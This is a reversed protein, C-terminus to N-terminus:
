HYYKVRGELNKHAGIVKIWSASITWLPKYDKMGSSSGVTEYWEHM